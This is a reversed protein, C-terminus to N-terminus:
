NMKENQKRAPLRCSWLHSFAIVMSSLVHPKLRLELRVLYKEMSVRTQCNTDVTLYIHLSLSLSLSLIM